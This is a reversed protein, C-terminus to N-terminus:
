PELSRALPAYRCGCRNAYRSGYRNPNYERLPHLPNETGSLFYPFLSLTFTVTQIAVSIAVPTAAADSCRWSCRAM